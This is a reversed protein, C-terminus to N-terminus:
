GIAFSVFNSALFTFAELNGLKAAHHLCTNGKDDTISFDVEKAHKVIAYLCDNYGSKAASILASEGKFNKANIDVNADQLISIIIEPRGVRAADIVLTTQDHFPVLKGAFIEVMLINDYDENTQFKTNQAVMKPKKKDRVQRYVSISLPQKTKRGTGIVLSLADDEDGAPLYQPYIRFQTVDADENLQASPETWELGESM